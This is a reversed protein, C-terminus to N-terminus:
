VMGLYERVIVERGIKDFGGMELFKYQTNAMTMIEVFSFYLCTPQWQM